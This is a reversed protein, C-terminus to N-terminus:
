SGVGLRTITASLCVASHSAVFNGPTLTAGMPPTGCTRFPVGPRLRRCSDSATDKSIEAERCARKFTHRFSHFTQTPSDIGTRSAVGRERALRECFRDFWKGFAGAPERVTQDISPFLYKANGRRLSEVHDLFGLDLVMRHLPVMRREGWESEHGTVDSIPEQLCLSKIAHSLVTATFPASGGSQGSKGFAECLALIEKAFPTVIADPTTAALIDLEQKAFSQTNTM